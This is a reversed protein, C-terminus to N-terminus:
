QCKKLWNFCDKVIQINTLNTQFVIAPLIYSTYNKSFKFTSIEREREKEGARNVVTINIDTGGTKALQIFNPTAGDNKNGNGGGNSCKNIPKPRSEFSSISSVHFLPV